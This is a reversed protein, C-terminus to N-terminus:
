VIVSFLLPGLLAVFTASDSETGALVVNTESVWGPPQFQVVGATPAVPAILQVIALKLGPLEINVSTTATSMAVAPPVVMVLVADTEAEVGSELEAFLLAVAVVVTVAATPLASRETM